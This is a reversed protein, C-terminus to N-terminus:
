RAASHSDSRAGALRRSGMETVHWEGCRNEILQLACLKAVDSPRFRNRGPDDRFIQRLTSEENPSLQARLGRDM